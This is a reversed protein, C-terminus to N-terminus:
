KFYIVKISFFGGFIYCGDLNSLNKTLICILVLMKLELDVRIEDQLFLRCTHLVCKFDEFINGFIKSCQFIIVLIGTRHIGLKNRDFHHTLSSMILLSLSTSMTLDSLLSRIYLM